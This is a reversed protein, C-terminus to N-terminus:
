RGAREKELSNSLLISLLVFVILFLFFICCVLLLFLAAFTPFSAAVLVYVWLSAAVAWLSSSSAGAADARASLLCLCVRCFGHFSDVLSAGEIRKVITTTTTMRTTKMMKKSDDEDAQERRSTSYRSCFSSFFISTLYLLNYALSLFVGILNENKRVVVDACSEVQKYVGLLCDARFRLCGTLM